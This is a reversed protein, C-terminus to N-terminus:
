KGARDQASLYGAEILATYAQEITEVMRTRERVDASIKRIIEAMTRMLANPTIFVLLRARAHRKSLVRLANSLLNHPIQPNPSPIFLLACDHDVQDLMADVQQKAQNLEDWTWAQPFELRIVSREQNIWEIAIPM